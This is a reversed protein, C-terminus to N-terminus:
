PRPFGGPNPFGPPLPTPFDSEYLSGGGSDFFGTPSSGLTLSRLDGLEELQPKRYFKRLKDKSEVGAQQTESPIKHNFSMNVEFLDILIFINIGHWM